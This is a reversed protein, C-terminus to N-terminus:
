KYIHRGADTWLKSSVQRTFQLFKCIYHTWLIRHEPLTSETRKMIVSIMSLCKIQLLGRKTNNFPEPETYIPATVVLIYIFVNFLTNDHLEEYITALKLQVSMLCELYIPLRQPKTRLFRPFKTNYDVAM